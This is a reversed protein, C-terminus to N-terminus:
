TTPRLAPCALARSRALDFFAVETLDRQPMRIGHFLRDADLAPLVAPLPGDHVRATLPSPMGAIDRITVDALLAGPGAQLRGLSVGEPDTRSVGQSAKAEGHAVQGSVEAPPM